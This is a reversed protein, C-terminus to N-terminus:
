NPLGVPTVSATSTTVGGRDLRERLAAGFRRDLEDQRMYIIGSDHQVRIDAEGLARKEQVQGVELYQLAQKVSLEEAVMPLIRDMAKEQLILADRLHRRRASIIRQENDRLWVANLHEDFATAREVWRYRASLMSITSSHGFHEGTRRVSREEPPMMMYHQFREYSRTTEGSQREWM